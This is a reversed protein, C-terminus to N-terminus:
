VVIKRANKYYIVSLFLDASTRGLARTSDHINTDRSIITPFM